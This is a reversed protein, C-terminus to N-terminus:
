ALPPSRGPIAGPDICRPTSVCVVAVPLGKARAPILLAPEPLSAVSDPHLPTAQSALSPFARGQLTDSTHDATDHDLDPRAVRSVRVRQSRIAKESLGDPDCVGALLGLLLTAGALALVRATRLM